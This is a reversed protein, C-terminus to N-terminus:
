WLPKDLISMQNKDDDEVKTKKASKRLIVKQSKKTIKKSQKTPVEEEEEEEDLELEVDEDDEVEIETTGEPNLNIIKETPTAPDIIPNSGTKITKEDEM